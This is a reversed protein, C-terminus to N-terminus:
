KDQVAVCKLGMAEGYIDVTIPEARNIFIKAVIDGEEHKVEYIVTAGARRGSFSISDIMKTLRGNKAHKNIEGYRESVTWYGKTKNDACKLSLKVDAHAAVSAFSLAALVLMKM